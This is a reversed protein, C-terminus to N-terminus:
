KDVVVYIEGDSNRYETHVEGPFAIWSRVMSSSGGTTACGSLLLAIICTILGLVFVFSIIEQEEYSVIWRNIFRRIGM